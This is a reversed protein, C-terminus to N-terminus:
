KARLAVSVRRCNRCNNRTPRMLRAIPRATTAPDTITPSTTSIMICPEREPLMTRSLRSM